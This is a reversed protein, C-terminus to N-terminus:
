NSLDTLSLGRGYRNWFCVHRPSWAGDTNRLFEVDCEEFQDLIREKFVAADAAQSVPVVMGKAHGDLMLYACRGNHRRFPFQNEYCGMFSYQGDAYGRGMYVGQIFNGESEGLMIQKDTSHEHNARRPRPGITLVLNRLTNAFGYSAWFDPYYPGMGFYMCGNDTVDDTPCAFAEKSDIYGLLMLNNPWPLKVDSETRAGAPFVDECENTYMNVAYGLQRIVSTCSTLSARAKASQLAPLLMAALIAIIAIVVLLEILTFGKAKM